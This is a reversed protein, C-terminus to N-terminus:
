EAQCKAIESRFYTWPKSKLWLYATLERTQPTRGMVKDKKFQFATTVIPVFAVSITECFLILIFLMYYNVCRFFSCDCYFLIEFLAYSKFILYLIEKCFKM